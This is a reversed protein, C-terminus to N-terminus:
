GTMVLLLTRFRLLQMAAERWESEAYNFEWAGFPMSTSVRKRVFCARFLNQRDGEDGAAVYDRECIM